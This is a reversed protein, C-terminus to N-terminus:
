RTASPNLPKGNVDASRIGTNDIFFSLRGTQGYRQPEAHGTFSKRDSAVNFQFSYGISDFAVSDQTLDGETIMEQVSGFQGSHQVSYKLEAKLIESLAAQM